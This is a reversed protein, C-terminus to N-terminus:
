PGEGGEGPGGGSKQWVVKETKYRIIYGVAVGAFFGVIAEIM